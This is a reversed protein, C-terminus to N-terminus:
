QIVNIWYFNVQGPLDLYSFLKAWIGTDERVLPLPLAFGVDEDIHYEKFITWSKEVPSSKDAAMRATQETGGWALTTESCRNIVSTAVVWWMPLLFRSGSKSYNWKRSEKNTTQHFIFSCFCLQEDYSSVSLTYEMDFMEPFLMEKSGLPLQFPGSQFLLFDHFYTALFFMKIKHSSNFSQILIIFKVSGLPRFWRKTITNM